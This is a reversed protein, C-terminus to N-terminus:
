VREGTRRSDYGPLEGLLRAYAHSRLADFLAVIRPDDALEAAVCLDYDEERAALFDLGAEAAALRVCVGAQAWGSRITEVVGRHDAATRTRAGSVRRGDFLADQLRRAGSGEERGVWRLRARVAAPISRLRLGPALAVGETWRAAHIVQCGPGLVARAVSANDVADDGLHVGAVHVVGSRLLELARASSRAFPLLRVGSRQWLVDRLLGISPDCGAVVLTRSPDAQARAGAAPTETGGSVEVVGDHAVAGALSSEVPYRLVREGVEALWYRREEGPPWAWAADEWSAHGLRFLTELPVGFARALALAAATSPIVRGTEIASVETRSLGARAAVQDQSWGRAQREERVRNELRGAPYAM